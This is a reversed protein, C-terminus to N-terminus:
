LGPRGSEGAKVEDWLRDLEVLGASSMLLGREGALREVESFRDRFRNTAVRLSSEPDVGLKRAVNVTAFLVDGLEESARSVDGAEVEVELEKIEEEIKSLAGKADAWDFGVSAAKRQLKIAYLLAPLVTSVGAMVGTEGREARKLREWNSEVAGSTDAQTDGFVHPHRAVLKDHVGTAVDALDFRDQESALVSHLVVQFLLDGLEEALHDWAPSPTGSDDTPLSEIAEMVEYTEELLFRTLSQHTQEMDWPCRARLVLALDVLKAIEQEPATRGRSAPM